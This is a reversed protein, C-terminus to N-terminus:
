ENATEWIYDSFRGVNQILPVPYTDDLPVVTFGGNGFLDKREDICKRVYQVNAIQPINFEQHSFARLKDIVQEPTMLYSFHWGGDAIKQTRLKNWRRKASRFIGSPEYIRLNQMSGFWKRFNGVTTIRSRQWWNVRGDSSLSLSNFAYFHNKQRLVASLYRRPNFELVSEPRPLEDVDSLIIWEKDECSPPIGRALANRQLHENDWPTKPNPSLDDVVIYTIRDAHSKFKHIDFFLEKPTGTFTRTAEAIVVHHVTDRLTELRLWLLDDEGNYTFCDYIISAPKM